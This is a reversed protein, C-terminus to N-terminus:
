PIDASWPIQIDVLPITRLELTSDKESLNLQLLTTGHTVMRDSLDHIKDGLQKISTFMLQIASKLWNIFLGWQKSVINLHTLFHRILIKCNVYDGSISLKYAGDDAFLFSTRYDFPVRTGPYNPVDLNALRNSLDRTVFYM